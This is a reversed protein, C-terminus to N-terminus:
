KEIQVNVRLAGERQLPSFGAMVHLHIQGWTVPSTVRRVCDQMGFMSLISQAFKTQRISVDGSKDDREVEMGLCYKLEGLDSMEFRESLARKTEALLDMDNCVLILDDVYLVVFMMASGDRKVYICHDMECKTFGIKPMFEDITQNWMRPSQKLGYLARKLKCVHDPYKPDVFGVPQKM